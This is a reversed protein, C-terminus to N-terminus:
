MSHMSYTTEASAGDDIIRGDAVWFMELPPNLSPGAPGM